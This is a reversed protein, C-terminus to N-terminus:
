KKCHRVEMVSRVREGKQFQPNGFARHKEIAAAVAGEGFDTLIQATAAQLGEADGSYRTQKGNATLYRSCRECYPTSVLHGYM